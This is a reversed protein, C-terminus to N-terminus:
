VIIGPADAGPADAPEVLQFRSSAHSGDEFEISIEYEGMPDGPSVYWVNGIVADGPQSQGRTTVTTGDRSITINPSEAVGEWSPPAKPLRLTEVWKMAMEPNAARVRWGFAQDEVHPVDHTAVFRAEGDSDAMWIGFEVDSRSTSGSQEDSHCAIALACAAAILMARLLQRLAVSM